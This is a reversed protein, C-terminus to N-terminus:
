HLEERNKGDVDFSLLLELGVSEAIEFMQKVMVKQIEMKEVETLMPSQMGAKILRMQLDFDFSLPKSMKQETPQMLGILKFAM